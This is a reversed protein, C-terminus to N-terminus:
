SKRKLIEGDSVIQIWEKGATKSMNEYIRIGLNSISNLQTIQSSM